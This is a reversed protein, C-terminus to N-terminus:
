ADLMEELTDVPLMGSVLYEDNGLDVVTAEVEEHEDAIEGVIDEVIDEITILGATGGFEDVVISLQMHESQFERLLESVKKTEPVFYPTRALEAVTKTEKKMITEFVDKMHGI